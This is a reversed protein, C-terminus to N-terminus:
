KQCCWQRKDATEIKYRTEAKEFSYDEFEEM